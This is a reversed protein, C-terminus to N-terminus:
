RSRNKRSPKAPELDEDLDKPAGVVSAKALENMEKIDEKTYCDAFYGPPPIPIPEYKRRRKM